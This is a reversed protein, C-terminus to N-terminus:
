RRRRFMGGRPADEPAEDQDFVAADGGEDRPGLPADDRVADRLSAFFADDDLSGPQGESEDEGSFLRGRAVPQAVDGDADVTGAEGAATDAADGASDYPLDIAVAELGEESVEGSADPGGSEALGLEARELVGLEVTSDHHAPESTEDSAYGEVGEDAGEDGAETPTDDTQAPEYADDLAAVAEDRDVYREPGAPVDVDHLAPRAPADASPRVSLRDLDDAVAARLRDRYDKEFTELAEVDISLAERQAALKAVEAEVRAREQEAVRRAEAEANRVTATAKATSEDLLHEARERAEAVTEDATRQALLLTRQLLGETDQSRDSNSELDTLRESLGNVRETLSEITAAARELLDDTQDRHYGRREEKIESNRLEQPTVDM